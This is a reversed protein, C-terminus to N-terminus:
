QNVFYGMVGAFSAQSRGSTTTGIVVDEQGTYRFLLTKFAALLTMFLTSQHQESLEKL